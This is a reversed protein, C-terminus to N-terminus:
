SDEGSDPMGKGALIRSLQDIDLSDLAGGEGTYKDKKRAILESRLIDIYGHLIRRRYSVENEEQVYRDILEKLEDDALTGLDPLAEVPRRELNAVGVHPVFEIRV